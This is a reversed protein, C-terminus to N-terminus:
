RGWSQCAGTAQEYLERMAAYNTKLVRKSLETTTYDKAAECESNIQASLQTAMAAVAADLEARVAALEDNVRAQETAMADTRDAVEKEVAGELKSLTDYDLTDGHDGGAVGRIATFADTRDVVEQEVAGELKSLTDYDLNDGHHAGSVGRIATFADTRDVVEKEVAGELKSLTDYNLTDGHDGGAVGRIATFADTRDSVEQEVARELKALTGYQRGSVVAGADSAAGELLEKLNHLSDYATGANANIKQIADEVEEFTDMTEVEGKLENELQDLLGAEETIDQIATELAALTAYDRVGDNGVSLSPIAGMLLNKLKLLSDTTGLDKIAALKGQIKKFDNHESDAGDVGKGGRLLYKLQDLKGEGDTIAEIAGELAALTAFDREGDAGAAAAAGELLGKLEHLSDYATGANANIKQIADEVKGFTDMTEVDGELKGKLKHLSDYDTGNAGANIKQIADEVEEFTDMTEVDGKLEDKLESKAVAILGDSGDDPGTIELLKGQIGFLTDYAALLTDGVAKDGRIEDKLGSKAVAILGTDSNTIEILRKEIEVLTDYNTGLTDSTAADGRIEEKLKDLKGGLDTIEEIATELAALTDYDRAGDSGADTANGMLKNELQVLKGGDETIAEIRDQIKGLTDFANAAGGRLDLMVQTKLGVLTDYGAEADKVLNDYKVKLPSHHDDLVKKIQNELEVLTRYNESAGNVLLLNNATIAADIRNKEGSGTAAANDERLRKLEAAITTMSTLDFVDENLDGLVNEIQQLSTYTSNSDSGDLDIILDHLQKLSKGGEISDETISKIKREIKYLTDYEADLDVDAAADGRLADKLDKLLGTDSNTIEKLKKQIGVLTEYGADLTDAAAADGKIATKAQEILSPAAVTTTVDNTETTRFLWRNGNVGYSCTAIEQCLPDSVCGSPSFAQRSGLAIWCRGYDRTVPTTTTTTVEESTSVTIEKIKAEIEALTDYAADNNNGRLTEVVGKLSNTSGADELIGEIATELAALTAYDREGDAGADTANGKLFSIVGALSDADDSNVVDKMKEEIEKFTRYGVSAGDLLEDKAQGILSLVENGDDDTSDETIERIKGEIEALTDYTADNNSGRLDEKVKELLSPTNVTETRTEEYQGNMDCQVSGTPNSPKEESVINGYGGASGCEVMETITVEKTTAETIEKLKKQIEVFTDYDADAGNKLHTIVTQLSDADDGADLIDGIAIEIDALTDATAGDRLAEKAQEILSPTNVTTTTTASGSVYWKGQQGDRTVCTVSEYQPHDVDSDTTTLINQVYDYSFDHECRTYQDTTTSVERSTGETIEKLKGEIEILTDYDKDLLDDDDVGLIDEELDDIKKEVQEIDEIVKQKHDALDGRIGRTVMTNNEDVTGYIEDEVNQVDSELDSVDTKLNAIDTDRLSGVEEVLDELDSLANHVKLATPMDVTTADTGSAATVSAYLFARVNLLDAKIQTLAGAELKDPMAALADRVDQAGPMQDANAPFLIGNIRTIEEGIGVFKQGLVSNTDPVMDDILDEVWKQNALKNSGDTADTNLATNLANYFAQTVLVKGTTGDLDQIDFGGIAAELAQTFLMQQNTHDGSLATSDTQEQFNAYWRDWESKRDVRLQQVQADTSKKAKDEEEQAKSLSYADRYFDQVLSIDGCDAGILRDAASTQSDTPTLGMLHIYGSSTHGNFEHEGNPCYKFKFGSLTIEAVEYMRARFEWEDMSKQLGSVKVHHTGVGFGESEFEATVTALAVAHTAFNYDKYLSTESSAYGDAEAAAVLDALTKTADDPFKATVAAAAASPDGAKGNECGGHYTARVFGANEAAQVAADFADLGNADTAFKADEAADHYATTDGVMGGQSSWIKYCQGAARDAQDKQAVDDFGEDYAAKDADFQAKTITNRPGLATFANDREAECETWGGQGPTGHTTCVTHPSTSRDAYWDEMDEVAAVRDFMEGDTFGRALADAAKALWANYETKTRDVEDARCCAKTYTRMQEYEAVGADTAAYGLAGAAAQAKTVQREYLAEAAAGAARGAWTSYFGLAAYTSVSEVKAKTVIDNPDEGQGYFYENIDSALDDIGQQDKSYGRSHAHNADDVFAKTTGTGHLTAAAGAAEVGAASDEFGLQHAAAMEDDDAKTFVGSVIGHDSRATVYDSKTTYGALNAQHIVAYNSSSGPDEYGSIRYSLSHTPRGYVSGHNLVNGDSDTQVTDPDIRWIYENASTQGNYWYEELDGDKAYDARAAAYLQAPAGATTTDFMAAVNADTKVWSDGDTANVWASAAATEATSMFDKLDGDRLNFGLDEALKNAEFADHEDKTLGLDDWSSWYNTMDTIANAYDGGSDFGGAAAYLHRYYKTAYNGDKQPEDLSSGDGTSYWEQAAIWANYGADTSPFGRAAAKAHQKAAQSSYGDQRTQKDLIWQERFTTGRAMIQGNQGLPTWEYTAHWTPLTDWGGNDVWHTYWDSMHKFAAIKEADTGFQIGTDTELQSSPDGDFGADKARALDYLSEDADYADAFTAHAGGAHDEWPNDIDDSNKEPLVADSSGTIHADGAAKFVDNYWDKVDRLAAVNEADTGVYGKDSAEAADSKFQANIIVQEEYGADELVAANDRCTRAYDLLDWVTAAVPRNAGAGKGVYGGFYLGRKAGDALTAFVNRTAGSDDRTVRGQGDFFNGSYDVDDPFRRTGESGLFGNLIKYGKYENDDPNANGTAGANETHPVVIADSSIKHMCWTETTDLHNEVEVAIFGNDQDSYACGADSGKKYKLVM